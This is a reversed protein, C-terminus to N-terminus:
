VPINSNIFVYAKCNIDGSDLKRIAGIQSYIPFIIIVDCNESMVDDDFKKSTAKKRKELKTAVVLKM